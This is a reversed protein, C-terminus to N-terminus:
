LRGRKVYSLQVQLTNIAEAMEGWAAMRKKHDGLTGGSARFHGRQFEELMTKSLTALKEASEVITKARNNAIFNARELSNKEKKMKVWDARFHDLRYSGIHEELFDVVARAAERIDAKLAYHLKM